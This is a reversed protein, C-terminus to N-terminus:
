EMSEAVRLAAALSPAGEVRITLGGDEWILANGVVRLTTEVPEGRDDLYYIFHEGGALWYGARGGVRVEQVSTGTLLSKEFTEPGIDARFQTVVLGIGGADQAPYGRREGWALGVQGGSPPEDFYVRDPAGLEDLAPVRPVFGALERAQALTVISGLARDRALSPAASVPPEGFTIRLGGLAIGAALAATALLIAALLGLAMARPASRWWPGRRLLVQLDAGVASALDPTAPWDVAASLDELRAELPLRPETM